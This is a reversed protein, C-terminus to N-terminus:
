GIPKQLLCVHEAQNSGPSGLLYNRLGVWPSDWHAAIRFGKLLHHMADATMSHPHGVNRRGIDTEFAECTLVFHGGPRLVRSIESITQGPDEVHDLANSCFVVDFFGTPFPISEGYGKRVEINMPYDYIAKYRDALPDIGYRHGPLYHLVTSIGCGVDLLYSADDFNVYKRIDDLHRYRVWYALVAEQAQPQRFHEVWHSRQWEFEWDEKLKRELRVIRALRAAVRGFLMRTKLM